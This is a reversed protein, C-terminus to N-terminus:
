EYRLATSPDVLSARRAPLYAAIGAVLVLIGVAAAVTLPDFDALGYFM